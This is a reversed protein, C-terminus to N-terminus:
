KIIEFNFKEGNKSKLHMQVDRRVWYDQLEGAEAFDSYKCKEQYPCFPHRGCGSCRKNEKIDM